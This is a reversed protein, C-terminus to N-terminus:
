SLPELTMSFDEGCIRSDMRLEAKSNCPTGDVELPEMSRCCLKDGSRFLVVDSPWDRCVIHNHSAPGLVCSEAFLLISDAFPHTRHRSLLDIRATSSLAHPQRFRMRVPGMEVEDQDSLLITQDQNVGNVRVTSMPELIYSEGERRLRAHRQSLDALIPLHVQNSPAAQGIEIKDDLCVFYGGVADVWLLFRVGLNAADSSGNPAGPRMSTPRYAQTLAMETADSVRRNKENVIDMREVPRM